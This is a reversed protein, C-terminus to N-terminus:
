RGWGGGGPTELRVVAGRRVRASCKGRLTREEGGDRLVARGAEGEGGGALGYPQMVRRDALLTVEADCLLELEKVLGDGGRHM